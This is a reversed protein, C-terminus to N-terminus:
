NENEFTKKAKLYQRQTYQKLQQYDKEEIRGLQYEEELEELMSLLADQEQLDPEQKKLRYPVLPKVYLPFSLLGILMISLFAGIILPLM